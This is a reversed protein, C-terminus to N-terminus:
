PKVEGASSTIAASYKLIAARLAPKCTNFVLASKEPCQEIFEWAAANLANGWAEADATWAVPQVIPAAAPAPAAALADSVLHALSTKGADKLAGYIQWMTEDTLTSAAVPAPAAAPAFEQWVGWAAATDSSMYGGFRGRVLTLHKKKAYAEFEARQQENLETM